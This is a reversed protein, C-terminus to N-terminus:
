LIRVIINFYCQREVRTVNSVSHNEREKRESRQTRWMEGWPKAREGEEIIQSSTEGDDWWNSLFFGPPGFDKEKKVSYFVDTNAEPPGDVITQWTRIRTMKGSVCVCPQETSQRMLCICVLVGKSFRYHSMKGGKGQWDDWISEPSFTLSLSLAAALLLSRQNISM